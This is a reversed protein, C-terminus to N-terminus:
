SIGVKFGMNTVMWIGMLWLVGTEMKESYRPKPHECVM